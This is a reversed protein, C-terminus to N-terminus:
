SGIQLHLPDRLEPSQTLGLAPRGKILVKVAIVFDPGCDRETIERGEGEAGGGEGGGEGM